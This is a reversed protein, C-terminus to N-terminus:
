LMIRKGPNILAAVLEGSIISPPVGPGPVTLQGAYYLNDVKKSKCKPKLIATQRLTNALGYANGKFSHYENVFDSHGFSKKYIIYQGINEGIHKEFRDLIMAFYKERREISDDVLGTAVPVLFFLNECGAPAVTEDTVSNVCVYFLPEAPWTKIKYIEKGHQEFDADFFLNHHRINNLKKNLGVYYILCSPAMKRKEWYSAPYSRLHPPLLKQEIFHYDASGIVIDAKYRGRATVVNEITNKGTKLELVEENFHFGAGRERALDYMAKVVSYMGGKPYWTGGIIDAYNMLSYLAPTHQPLAGLFLVPFEMLQRARKSKFYKSIHARMSTFVDMKLIGKLMEKNAFEKISLGPKYALKEMGVRYKFEAEELFKGLQKGAGPEWSEFLSKLEEIGAPIDTYGDQWIVRYSPDLRQLCYYDEINKGFSAFYREFVGPMWYWSPGMDFSFGAENLQRARGGPTAHKELVTVEWGAKAM